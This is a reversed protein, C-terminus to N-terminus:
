EMWNPGYWGREGLGPSMRRQAEAKARETAEAPAEHEFLRYACYHCKYVDRGQIIGLYEVRSHGCHHYDANNM